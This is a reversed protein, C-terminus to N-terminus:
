SAILARDPLTPANGLVLFCGGVVGSTGGVTHRVRVYRQSPRARLLSAHPAALTDIEGSDDLDTVTVQDDSEQLTFRATCGAAVSGAACLAEATRRLGREVWAGDVAGASTRRAFVVHQTIRLDDGPYSM